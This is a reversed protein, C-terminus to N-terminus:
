SFDFFNEKSFIIVQCKAVLRLYSIVLTSIMGNYFKELAMVQAPTKLRRKKDKESSVKNEESHVESLELM